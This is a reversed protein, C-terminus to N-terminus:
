EIWKRNVVSVPEKGELYRIVNETVEVHLAKSGDATNWAVHPTLSVNQMSLIRRDINGKEDEFVDLGAGAIVGKELADIMEAEKILGGRSTNIIVATKKMKEFQPKGIMHRTQDSLPLHLTIYDSQELLSDLSVGEAKYEELCEPQVYPDYVVPKMGLANTRVCVCRAIKGFGIFGITKGCLRASQGMKDTDWLGDRVCDNMYILRKACSLLLSLAHEAVDIVGYNPANCVLIGREACRKIDINDYGIGYRIILECKELSDIVERNITIDSFLIVDADRVVAIVDEQKRASSICFMVDSCSGFKEKEYEFDKDRISLAVIKKM